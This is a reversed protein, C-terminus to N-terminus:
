FTTAASGIDSYVQCPDEGAALRASWEEFLQRRAERRAPRSSPENAAEGALDIMSQAAARCRSAELSEASGATAADGTTVNGSIPAAISNDTDASDPTCASLVCTIIAVTLLCVTKRIM